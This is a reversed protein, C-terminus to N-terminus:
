REYSVGTVKHILEESLSLEMMSRILNDKTMWIGFFHGNIFGDERAEEIETPIYRVEEIHKGYWRKEEADFEVVAKVELNETYFVIEEGVRINFFDIQDNSIRFKFPYPENFDISLKKM